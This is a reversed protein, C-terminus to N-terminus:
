QGAAEVAAHLRREELRQALAMAILALGGFTINIGVLLGLAWAPTGGAFFIPAFILDFIASALIWGVLFIIWREHLSPALARQNLM